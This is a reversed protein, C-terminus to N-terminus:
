HNDLNTSIYSLVINKVLKSKPCVFMCFLRFMSVIFYKNKLPQSSEKELSEGM